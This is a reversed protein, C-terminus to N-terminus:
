KVALKLEHKLNTIEARKGSGGYEGDLTWPVKSESTFLIHKTKFCYLDKCSIDRNILAALVVNIELPNAPKRVLTVEFLGDSLNVNKGTINKFGGVSDSNTIMGYLFDDMNEGNRIFKIM